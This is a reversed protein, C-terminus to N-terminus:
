DIEIVEMGDKLSPPPSMVIKDNSSLGSKVWVNGNTFEHFSIKRKFVKNNKLLFVDGKNASSMAISSEPITLREEDESLIIKGKFFMGPIFIKSINDSIAKVVINGSKQDITPSIQNIIFKHDSQKLSPINIDVEQGVYLSSVQSEQVTFVAYIKKDTFTTLLDDGKKVREGEEVQRAGLIGNYPSRVTLENILIEISELEREKSKVQAASVKVEAKQQITNLEILLAKKEEPDEPVYKYYAELDEDRFGIEAIKNDVIMSKINTELSEVKFRLSIIEEESIGDIQFLEEKNALTVNAMELEKNKQDLMLQSKELSLFKAEVSRRAEELKTKSLQYATRSTELSTEIQSKQIMLQTNQIRLLIQGKRIRDGVEGYIRDIYGDSSATISTKRTFSLNGYCEINPTYVVMSPQEADVKILQASESVPIETKNCSVLFITLTFLLINIKM